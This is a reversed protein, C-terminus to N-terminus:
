GFKGSLGIEQEISDIAADIYGAGDLVDFLKLLANLRAERVVVPDPELRYPEPRRIIRLQNAIAELQIISPTPEKM